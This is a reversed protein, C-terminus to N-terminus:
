NKIVMICLIIITCTCTHADYLKHCGFMLETILVMYM